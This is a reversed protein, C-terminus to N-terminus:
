SEEKSMRFRELVRVVDVSARSPKGAANTFVHHTLGEALLDGAPNVVEYGFACGRGSLEIMRSLVRIPDDYSSRRRLACEMRTVPIFIGDREMEAYPLGAARCWETRGIEFWVLYHAHYVIGMQDTESYRVRLDTAVARLSL